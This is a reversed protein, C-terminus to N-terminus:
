VTSFKNHHFQKFIKIKIKVIFLYVRHRIKHKLKIQKSTENKKVKIKAWHMRTMYMYIKGVLTFDNDISHKIEIIQLKIYAINKM